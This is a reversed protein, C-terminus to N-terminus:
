PRLFDQRHQVPSVYREGTFHRLGAEGSDGYLVDTRYPSLTATVIRLAVRITDQEGRDLSGIFDTLTTRVRDANSTEPLQRFDVDLVGILERFKESPM